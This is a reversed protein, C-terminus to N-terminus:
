PRLVNAAGERFLLMAYHLHFTRLLGSTMPKDQTPNCAFCSLTLRMRTSPSELSISSSDIEDGSEVRSVSLRNFGAFSSHDSGFGFDIYRESSAPKTNDNEDHDIGVNTDIVQFTGFLISGLSPLRRGCLDQHNWIEEGANMGAM